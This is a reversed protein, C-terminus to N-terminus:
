DLRRLSLGVLTLAKNIEVLSTQGFNKCGLLEAETTRTLDGITVMSLKTLCKRSRVTLQLEEIPKSLMGQDEAEAEEPLATQAFQGDEMALGLSLGKAELIIKIERLSTDGFNKYSLLESESINLLDGLTHINMKKLCNRSRVSLEFDSIPTELIQNKRSLSREGEEDFFMTKSSEIDRSFLIARKHNPFADLVKDVCQAALGYQGADEYLVALNLLANVFCRPGSVIRKYCALAEDDRGNLDYRLALHFRAEVHNPSLEIAKEYNEVAEDYSAKLELLRATQYHYEASVNAYNGCGALEREAAEVNTAMRYTAVKEMVVALADAQHSLSKDLCEIAEEYRGLDRLAYASYFYKEKCDAAKKLSECAEATRKLLYLGVGVKLRDQPSTKKLNEGVQEAFRERNIASSLVQTVTKKIDELSPSAVSFLDVELEACQEM